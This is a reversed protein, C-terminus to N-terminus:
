DRLARVLLPPKTEQQPYRICVRAGLPLRFFGLPRHLRKVSRCLVESGDELQVVVLAGKMGVITGIAEEHPRRENM